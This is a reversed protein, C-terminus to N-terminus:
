AVEVIRELHSARIVFEGEVAAIWAFIKQDAVGADGVFRLRQQPLVARTLRVARKIEWTESRFDVTYSFWNAYTVAPVRTNVITATIAPYGRTLRAKGRLPPPTSKRVM